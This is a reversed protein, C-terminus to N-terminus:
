SLSMQLGHVRSRTQWRPLMRALWKGPKTGREVESAHEERKYEHREQHLPVRLHLVGKRDCFQDIGAFQCQCDSVPLPGLVLPSFTVALGEPALILPSFTMCPRNEQGKM